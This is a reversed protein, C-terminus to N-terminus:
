PTNASFKSPLSVLSPIRSELLKMPHSDSLSPTLGIEISEQGLNRQGALARQIRSWGSWDQLMASTDRDAPRQEYLSFLVYLQTGGKQFLYERFPLSGGAISIERRGFDRVLVAGSAELCTEPRHMRASQTSTRGPAWTLHYLSWNRGDVDRWEAADAGSYLLIRRASEPIPVSHFDSEGTPWSIALHVPPASSEHFGYWLQVAIETTVLSLILGVPIMVPLFPVPTKTGVSSAPEPDRWRAALLWAGTLGFCLISVGAPDHWSHIAGMGVHSAVASLVTTRIVNGGLAFLLGIAVLAIRRRAPLRCLEGLFLSVMLMAQLSRIGSCAEDIGVSGTSLCILNGQRYAPTNLWGLIEVTIAAVQRMLSQTLWLDFRQPWPVATLLFLLPFLFWCAWRLGGTRCLFLFAVLAAALALSWNVVSWDPAAEQILRLPLFLAAAIFLLGEARMFQRQPQESWRLIALVVGLLPVSWAYAYQPDTAWFFYLRRFLIVWPALLAAMWIIQHLVGASPAASLARERRQPDLALSERPLDAVRM